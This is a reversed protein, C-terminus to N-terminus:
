KWSFYDFSVVNISTNRNNLKPDTSKPCMNDKYFNLLSNLSNHIICIMFANRKAQRSGLPIIQM